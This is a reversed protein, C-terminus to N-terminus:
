RKKATSGNLAVAAMLSGELAAADGARRAGHRPRGAVLAIM